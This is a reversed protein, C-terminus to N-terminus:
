IEGRPSVVESVVGDIKWGAEEEVLNYRFDTRHNHGDFVAVSVFARHKGDDRVAGVEAQKHQMLAPYGRRIMAAFVEQTFRARIGASAFGYAKALDNERIAGLQGEVAARAAERVPKPSRRWDDGPAAMSIVAGGFLCILWVLRIM